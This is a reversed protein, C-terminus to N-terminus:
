AIAPAAKQPEARGDAATYLAGYLSRQLGPALAEAQQKGVVQSDIGHEKAISVWERWKELNEEKEAAFAIGTTRFGTERGTL